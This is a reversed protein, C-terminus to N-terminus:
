VFIQSEALKEHESDLSESVHLVTLALSRCFSKIFAKQSTHGRTVDRTTDARVQSVERNGVWVMVCVRAGDSSGNRHTRRSNQDRHEPSRYM